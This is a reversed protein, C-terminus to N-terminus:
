SQSLEQENNYKEYLKRGKDTLVGQIFHEFIQVQIESLDFEEPPFLRTDFAMQVTELRLKALIEVNIDNRFVGMEIGSKLNETITGYIHDNKFDLWIQWAKPHYKQIDFLLSPNINKFDKRMCSSVRKMEEIPDRSVRHIEIYEAKEKDMHRRFATTVIEDKDKFNQY